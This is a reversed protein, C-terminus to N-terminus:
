KERRTRKSKPKVVIMDDVEQMSDSSASDTAKSNSATSSPISDIIIISEGLSSQKFLDSTSEKEKEKKAKPKEEKM